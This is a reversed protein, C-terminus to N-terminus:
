RSWVWTHPLKFIMGAQVRAGDGVLYSARFYLTAFFLTVQPGVARDNPDFALGAAWGRMIGARQYELYLAGAELQDESVLDLSGGLNLGESHQPYVFFDDHNHSWDSEGRYLSLEIGFSALLNVGDPIEIGAASFGGASAVVMREGPDAPWELGEKAVDRPPLPVDALGPANWPRHTHRCGAASLVVLMLLVARRM